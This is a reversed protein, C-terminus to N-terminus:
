PSAEIPHDAEMERMAAQEQVMPVVQVAALSPAECAMMQAEAAEEAMMMVILARRMKQVVGSAM